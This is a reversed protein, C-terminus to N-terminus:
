PAKKRKLNWRIVHIGSLYRDHRVNTIEQHREGGEAQQQGHQWRLRLVPRAGRRDGVILGPERDIQRDAAGIFRLGFDIPVRDGVLATHAVGFAAVVLADLEVIVHEGLRRDIGPRRPRDIWGCARKRQPRATSL